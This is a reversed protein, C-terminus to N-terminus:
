WLKGDLVLFSEGDVEIEAGNCITNIASVGVVTLVAAVM